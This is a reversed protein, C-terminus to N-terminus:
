MASSREIPPTDRVLLDVDQTMVPAGQLVAATSGVIIAELGTVELARVLDRLFSDDSSSDMAM